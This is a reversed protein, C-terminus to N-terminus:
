RHQSVDEGTNQEHGMGAETESLVVSCHFLNGMQFRKGIHSLLQLLLDIGSATIQPQDAGIIKADCRRQFEIEAFVASHFYDRFFTGCQDHVASAGRDSDDATM